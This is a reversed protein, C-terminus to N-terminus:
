RMSLRHVMPYSPIATQLWPWPARYQLMSMHHDDINMDMNQTLLLDSEPSLLTGAADPVPFFFFGSRPSDATIPSPCEGDIDDSWCM